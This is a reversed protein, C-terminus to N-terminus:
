RKIAKLDALEKQRLEWRERLLTRVLDSGSRCKDLNFQIAQEKTFWENLTGKNLLTIRM